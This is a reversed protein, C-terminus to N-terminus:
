DDFHADEIEWGDWEDVSSEKVVEPKPGMGDTAYYEKKEKEKNKTQNEVLSLLNGLSASSAISLEDITDNDDEDEEEDEDPLFFPDGGMALIEAERDAFTMGEVFTHRGGDDDDNEKKNEVGKKKEDTGSSKDDDDDDNVMRRQIDGLNSHQRTYHNSSSLYYPSFSEVEVLCSAFVVAVVLLFMRWEANNGNGIM